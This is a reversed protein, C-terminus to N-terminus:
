VFPLMAARFGKVRFGGVRFGWDRFGQARLGVGRLGVDRLGLGSGTSGQVRLGLGGGGMIWRTEM